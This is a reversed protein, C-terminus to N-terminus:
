SNNLLGLSRLDQHAACWGDAWGTNYAGILSYAGSEPFAGGIFDINLRGNDSTIRYLGSQLTEIHISEPTILGQDIANM